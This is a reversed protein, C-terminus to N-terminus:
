HITKCEIEYIQDQKVGKCGDLYSCVLSAIHGGCEAELDTAELADVVGLIEVGTTGDAGAGAETITFELKLV